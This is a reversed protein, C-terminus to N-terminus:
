REQIYIENDVNIILNVQTDVPRVKMNASKAIGVEVPANRIPDSEIVLDSFELFGSPHVISKVSEKWTTYPLTNKISYSFKQFYTIQYDKISTM